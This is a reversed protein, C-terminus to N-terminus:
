LKLNRREPYWVFVRAYEMTKDYLVSHRLQQLDSMWRWGYTKAFKDTYIVVGPRTYMIRPPKTTATLIETM